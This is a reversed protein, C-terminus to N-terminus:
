GSGDAAIVAAAGTRHANAKRRVSADMYGGWLTQERCGQPHAHMARSQLRRTTQGGGPFM